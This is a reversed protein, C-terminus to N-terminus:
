IFLLTVNCIIINLIALQRFLVNYYTYCFPWWSKCINGMEFFLTIFLRFFLLSTPFTPSHDHLSTSSSQLGVCWFYFLLRTLSNAFRYLIGDIFNTINYWFSIHGLEFDVLNGPFTTSFSLILLPEQLMNFCYCGKKLRSGWLRPKDAITCCIFRLKGLNETDPYCFRVTFKGSQLNTTNSRELTKCINNLILTRRTSSGEHSGKESNNTNITEVLMLNWNLLRLM